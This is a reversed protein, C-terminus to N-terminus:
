RECHHEVEGVCRDRGGKGNIVDRGPGGLLVDDSARGSLRDPGNGGKLLSQFSRKPCSSVGRDSGGGIKHLIDRGDGGRIVVDCGFAALDNKFADGTM